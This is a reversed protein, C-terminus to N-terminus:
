VEREPQLFQVGDRRFVLPQEVVTVFKGGLVRQYRLETLDELIHASVRWLQQEAYVIDGARPLLSPVCEPLVYHPIDLMPWSAPNLPRGDATEFRFNFERAMYLAAHPPYKYRM